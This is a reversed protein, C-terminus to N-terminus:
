LPQRWTMTFRWVVCFQCMKLGNRDSRPDNVVYAHRPKCHDIKITQQELPAIVFENEL